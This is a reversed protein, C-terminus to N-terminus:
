KTPSTRASSRPSWFSPRSRQCYRGNEVVFFGGRGLCPLPPHHPILSPPAKSVRINVSTFTPPRCGPPPWGHMPIGGSSWAEQGSSVQEAFQRLASLGGANELEILTNLVTTPHVYGARLSEAM